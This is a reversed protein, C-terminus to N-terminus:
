DVHRERWDNPRFFLSFILLLIAVSIVVDAINCVFWPMFPFYLMDVVFGTILREVYNGLFGGALMGFALCLYPTLRIKRIHWIAYAIALLPLLYPLFTNHEFMSLAMGYNHCLRLHLLNEWIVLPTGAHLSLSAWYKSGWDLAWTFLTVFGILFASQM